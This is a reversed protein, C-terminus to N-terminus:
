FSILRINHRRFKLIVILSCFYHKKSTILIDFCKRESGCHNEGSKVVPFYFCYFEWSKRIKLVVHSCQVGYIQALQRSRLSKGIHFYRLVFYTCQGRIRFSISLIVFCKGPPPLLATIITGSDTRRIGGSTQTTDAAPNFDVTFCLAVFTCCFKAFVLKLSM